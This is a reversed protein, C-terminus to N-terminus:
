PPPAAPRATRSWRAAQSVALLDFVARATEGLAAAGAALADALSAPGRGIAFAAAVGHERLEGAAVAVRGAFAIAPREAAAAM